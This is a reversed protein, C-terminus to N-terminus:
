SAPHGARHRGPHADIVLTNRTRIGCMVIPWSVGWRQSLSELSLLDGAEDDSLLEVVHGPEPPRGVRKVYPELDVICMDMAVTGIVPVAIGVNDSGPPLLRVWNTQGVQAPLYGDAYGVSVTGVHQGGWAHYTQGYGVGTSTPMQEVRTLTAEWRTARHVAGHNCVSIGHLLSGTRVHTIWDQEHSEPYQEVAGSNALHIMSPVIGSEALANVVAKVTGVARLTLQEAMSGPDRVKDAMPFHTFLGELVAKPSSHMARGLEVARHFDAMSVPVGVRCMGTDLKLHVKLHGEVSTDSVMAREYVPWVDPDTLTVSIGLDRALKLATVPVFGLVLITPRECGDVVDQELAQRLAVAAGLSAVAFASCGERLLRRAVPVLGAGYARAKVVAFPVKTTSRAVFAYNAAITELSVIRRAGRHLSIDVVEDKDAPRVVTSYEQLEEPSLIAALESEDWIRM